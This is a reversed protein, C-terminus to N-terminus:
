IRDISTPIDDTDMDDYSDSAMSHDLIHPSEFEIRANLIDQKVQNNCLALRFGIHPLRGNPLVGNRHSVRCKKPSNEWCGGRIIKNEGNLPGSPDDQHSSNYPGEWDQCWEYVNGSMDYIGLENPEKNGVECAAERFNDLQWTMYEIVSVNDMDLPPRYWAVDDINNSGSYKYNHTLEGGRAAYEWEAETPLRFSMGTIVNLKEIFSQCDYWSINEVPYLEGQSYSPNNNMVAMWLEQTVVYKGIHFSSLTISHTPKEKEDYDDNQESTAGMIFNGGNVYIMEFSVGNVSFTTNGKKGKKIINDKWSDYRLFEIGEFKVRKIIFSSNRILPNSFVVFSINNKKEKLFYNVKYSLSAIIDDVIEDPSLTVIGNNYRLNKGVQEFYPNDNHILWDVYQQPFQITIAVNQVGKHLINGLIDYWKEIITYFTKEEVDKFDMLLRGVPTILRYYPRNNEDKLDGVLADGVLSCFDNICRCDLVDVDEVCEIPLTNSDIQIYITNM